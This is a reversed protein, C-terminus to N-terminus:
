RLILTLIVTVAGLASGACTLIQGWRLKAAADSILGQAAAQMALHCFVAGGVGLALSLCAVSSVLSLALWTSARRHLERATPAPSVLPQADSQM